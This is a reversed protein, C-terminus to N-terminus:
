SLPRGLGLSESSLQVTLLTLKRTPSFKGTMTGPKVYGSIGSLLVKIGGTVPIEYELKKWTFNVEKRDLKQLKTPSESNSELQALRGIAASEVDEGSRKAPPLPHESKSNNRRLFILIDGKGKEIQPIFEVALGYAVVFFAFYAILIGYNRWLHSHYYGFSEEIYRDGSVFISGPVSGTM